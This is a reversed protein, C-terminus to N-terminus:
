SKEARRAHVVLSLGVPPRVRQEVARWPVLLAEYARLALPGIGASGFRNKLWWGPLGLANFYYLDVVELGTGEVLSRLSAPTYRRFHGYTVDLTGFLAPVAPVLLTLTGGPRLARAMAATAPADAEIHELVNQCLVFDCGSARDALAASEPLLERAIVVRPDQEFRRELEDACATEPEIALLQDTGGALLRSSFTGIGAGVEVVAGRGYESFQAFMWDCLRPAGALTRLEELIAVETSRGARDASKPLRTGTLRRGAARGTGNDSRRRAYLVFKTHPDFSVQREGLGSAHLLPGVIRAAAPLAPAVDALLTIASSTKGVSHWGVVEYGHRSVLSSVGRVSLLVLHEGARQIEPWRRGLARSVLSGADPTLLALMGGPRTVRAAEGILADPDSVHELLDMMTIADFSAPEFAASELRDRIVEVGLQERAYSAAWPNLDLGRVGWGRERAASLMFGPGAGVDLLRGPEVFREIWALTEAFKAEIPARDAIYDRYGHFSGSEPPGYDPNIYYRADDYLEASLESDPPNEAWLSRCDSCRRFRLGAVTM